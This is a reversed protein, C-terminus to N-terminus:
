RVRRRRVALAGAALALGGVVTALAGAGTRPLSTGVPDSHTGFKAAALVQTHVLDVGITPLPSGLLKLSVADAVGTACVSYAKISGSCTTSTTGRETVINTALPTGALLSLSQPATIKQDILSNGTTIDLAKVHVFAVDATATPKGNVIAATADAVAIEIQIVGGLLSLTVARGPSAAAIGDATSGVIGKNPAVKIDLVPDSALKQKISSIVNSARDRVPQPLAGIQSQVTDLVSNVAPVDKVLTQTLTIAADIEGSSHNATPLNAISVACDTSGLKATLIPALSAPTTLAALSDTLKPPVCAVQANALGPIVIGNAKADARRNRIQVTQAAVRQYAANSAGGGVTLELDGVTIRVAHSSAAGTFDSLNQAAGATGVGTSLVFLAACVAAIARSM